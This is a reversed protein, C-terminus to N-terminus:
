TLNSLVLLWAAYLANNTHLLEHGLGSAQVDVASAAWNQEPVEADHGVSVENCAGM